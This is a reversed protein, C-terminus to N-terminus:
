RLLFFNLIRLFFDRIDDKIYTKSAIVRFFYRSKYNTNMKYSDIFKKNEFYVNVEHKINSDIPSIKKIRYGTNEFFIKVDEVTHNDVYLANEKNVAAELIGEKVKDQFKGLGKFVNLDNGQTDIHLYNIFRINNEICFKELTVIEINIKKVTHFHLERYGPWSEDLNKSFEKLSSGTPNKSILFDGQKDINSVAKNIVKYNSIRKGIRKEIKLKNYNIKEFLVPNAEFAYVACKPNKIALALGDIGDYAGVDFIIKNKM